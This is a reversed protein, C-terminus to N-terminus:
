NIFSHSIWVNLYINPCWLIFITNQATNVFSPRFYTKWWTELLLSYQQSKVRFQSFVVKLRSDIQSLKDSTIFHNPIYLSSCLSSRTQVLESLAWPALVVNMFIQITLWETELTMKLKAVLGIVVKLISRSDNQINDVAFWKMQTQAQSVAQDRDLPRVLHLTRIPGVLPWMSDVMVLPSMHKTSSPSCTPFNIHLNKKANANTISVSTQNIARVNSVSM